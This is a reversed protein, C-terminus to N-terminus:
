EFSANILPLWRFPPPNNAAHNLLGIQIGRLREARNYLGIAIGRQTGRVQNYGAVAIGSLEDTRNM